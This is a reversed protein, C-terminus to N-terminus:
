WQRGNNVMGQEELMLRYTDPFHISSQSFITAQIRAAWCSQASKAPHEQLVSLKCFTKHQKLDPGCASRNKRSARRNVTAQISACTTGFGRFGKLMSPSICGWGLLSEPKPVLHNREEETQLFCFFRLGQHIQCCFPVNSLLWLNKITDRMAEEKLSGASIWNTTFHNKNTIIVKGAKEKTGTGVKKRRTTAM